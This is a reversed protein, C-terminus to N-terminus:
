WNEKNNAKASSMETKLENIVLLMQFVFDKKINTWTAKPMLFTGCVPKEQCLNGGSYQYSGSKEHICDSITYKYRGDKCQIQFSFRVIGAAPNFINKMKVYTLGKAIVQNNEKDDFQTVDKASRFIKTLAFKARTYLDNASISDIRVVEEM